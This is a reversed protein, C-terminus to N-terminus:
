SHSGSSALELELARACRGQRVAAHAGMPGASSTWASDPNKEDAMAVGAVSVVLGNNKEFGVWSLWAVSAM